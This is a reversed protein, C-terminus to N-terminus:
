RTEGEGRQALAQRVREAPFPLNDPSIELAQAIANAIAPATPLMAPEGLGKPLDPEGATVPDYFEITLDPMDALRPIAYHNFNRERPVGDDYHYEEILAMGLGMAIGGIVQGRALEPVVIAGADHLAHIHLVNVDGTAPNVAVRACHGAFAYDGYADGQGSDDLKSSLLKYRKQLSLSIGAGTLITAAAPWTLPEARGPIIIGRATLQVTDAAVSHLRGLEARLRDALARAATTVASGTVRTQRSAVTSGSDPALASDGSIVDIQEPGTGLPAACLRRFVEIAGQGYDVASTALQFRGDLRLELQCSGIDPIGNGYGIGYFALAYGTGIRWDAYAPPVPPPAAALRQSIWALSAASCIRQGTASSAGARWVHRLRFALPDQGLTRAIRDMHRECAFVAQPAGYGRMAGSIGNNTYAARATIRINPIDYPGAAHVVAKRLINPTWSMYAGADALIRIDVGTIRNHADLATRYHFAMPHRKVTGTFSEERSFLLRAPRGTKWAVLAALICASPDERKGFAAGMFPQRVRVRQAEIGLARAILMRDFYVNQSPTWVTLGGDDPLALAGEPEILAHEIRQTSYDGEIVRAADAFAREVDGKRLVMAAAENGNPHLQRAAPTLAQQPNTVPPLPAIVVRTLNAATEAAAPDSAAILAVPEGWFRIHGSALVPQDFIAKGTMLEGPIDSATLIAAIGPIAAAAASDISMLQGAPVQARIVRVTLADVCPIDAHYRAQGRAKVLAHPHAPPRQGSSAADAAVRAASAAFQVYGTCRCLNRQLHRAIQEPTSGAPNALAARASIMMGPACFGCQIAGDAAAQRALLDLLQDQQWAEITEIRAGNIDAAPLRCAPVAKGNVIVTCAGCVGARCGNKTGTLGLDGRIVDLLLKDPPVTLQVHQGNITCNLDIHCAPLETM